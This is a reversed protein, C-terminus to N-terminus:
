LIQIFCLHRKNMELIVGGSILGSIFHIRKSQRKTNRRFYARIQIKIMKLHRLYFGVELFESYDEEYPLFRQDNSEKYFWLCRRVNSAKEESWYVSNKVLGVLDVDFRGGKISEVFQSSNSGTERLKKIEDINKVYVSELKNSDRFSMPLWVLRESVYSTYFWHYDIPKYKIIESNTLPDDILETTASSEGPENDDIVLSLERSRSPSISSSVSSSYFLDDDENM